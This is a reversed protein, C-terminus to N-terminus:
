LQLRMIEQYAEIVKNQTKTLMRFSIDAKEEAIMTEHINARQGSALATALKDAEEINQNVTDIAKTLVKGFGSDAKGSTAAPRAPTTSGAPVVPTLKLDAM